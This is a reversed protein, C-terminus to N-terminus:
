FCVTLGNPYSQDAVALFAWAAVGEWTGMAQMVAGVPLGVITGGVFLGVTVAGAGYIIGAWGIADLVWHAVYVCALSVTVASNTGSSSMLGQFDVTGTNTVRPRESLPIAKIHANIESFQKQIENITAKSIKLSSPIKGQDLVFFGEENIQMYPVLEQIGAKISEGDLKFDPSAFASPTFGFLMVIVLAVCIINRSQRFAHEM